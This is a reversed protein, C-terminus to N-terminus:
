LGKFSTQGDRDRSNVDIDPHALLLKVVEVHGHASAYHPPTWGPYNDTWNVDINPNNKLLSLVKVEDGEWIVDHLHQEM